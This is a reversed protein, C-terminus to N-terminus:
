DEWKYSLIYAMGDHNYTYVVDGCPSQGQLRAQKNMPLHEDIFDKPLQVYSRLVLQFEQKLRDKTVRDFPYELQAPALKERVMLDIEENRTTM